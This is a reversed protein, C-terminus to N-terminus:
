HPDVDVFITDCLGYPYRGLAGMFHM